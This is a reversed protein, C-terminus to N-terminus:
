AYAVPVSVEGAQYICNLLNLGKVSRNKSHNCILENEDTHPKEQLIMSFPVGDEREITRLPHSSAM